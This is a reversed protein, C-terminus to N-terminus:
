GYPQSTITVAIYITAVSLAAYIFVDAVRSRMALLGVRDEPLLGRLIAASLCAGGFCAAGKRWHYLALLVLGVVIVVSVLAFPLHIWM